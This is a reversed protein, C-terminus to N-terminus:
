FVIVNPTLVQGTISDLHLNYSMKPVGIPKWIM